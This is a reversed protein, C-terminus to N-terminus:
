QAATPTVPPLTNHLNTQQTIFDLRATFLRCATAIISTIGFFQVLVWPCSVVSYVVIFAIIVYHQPLIQVGVFTIRPEGTFVTICRAIHTYVDLVHEIPVASVLDIVIYFIKWPLWGWSVINANM